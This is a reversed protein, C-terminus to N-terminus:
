KVMLFGIGGQRHKLRQHFPKELEVLHDGILLGTDDWGYLLRSAVAAISGGTLHAQPHAFHIRKDLLDLDQSHQDLISADPKQIKWGPAIPTFDVKAPAIPFFAHRVPMIGVGTETPTTRKSGTAYRLKIAPVSRVGHSFWGERFLYILDLM